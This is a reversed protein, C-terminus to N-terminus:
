FVLLCENVYHKKTAINLCTQLKGKIIKHRHGYAHVGIQKLEEHGMEALVDVTIHERVFMSKLSSLNLQELLELVQQLKTSTGTTAEVADAESAGVPADTGVNNNISKRASSNAISSTATAATTGPSPVTAIDMQPAQQTQRKHMNLLSIASPIDLDVSQDQTRCRGVVASGGSVAAIGSQLNPTRTDQNINGAAAPSSALSNDLTAQRPPLQAECGDLQQKLRDNDICKQVESVAAHDLHSGKTTTALPITTPLSDQLLCRVDDASALELPTHGQWDSVISFPLALDVCLM